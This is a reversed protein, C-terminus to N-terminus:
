LLEGGTEEMPISLSDVTFGPSEWEDGEPRGLGLSGVSLLFVLAVGSAAARLFARTWVAWADLPDMTVASRNTLKLARVGAMVQKEFGDPVVDSPVHDRAAKLLQPTLDNMDDTPIM